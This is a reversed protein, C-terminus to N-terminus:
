VTAATQSKYKVKVVWFTLIVAAIILLELWNQRFFMGIRYPIYSGENLLDWEYHGNTNSRAKFMLYNSVNNQKIFSKADLYDEFMDSSLVNPSETVYAVKYKGVEGSSM